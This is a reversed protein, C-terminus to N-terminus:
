RISNEASGASLSLRVLEAVSQVHLKEMVRARHVEVTKVSLALEDAIVRNLKGAIVREMVERERRTLAAMSAQANKERGRREIMEASRQLCRQIIEVLKRYDFPKEVFDIAGERVAQVAEAIHATGSVFVIPLDIGREKLRQQLHLGDMGTLTLDLVLCSPRDDRCATLFAEANAFGEARLGEREMLWSVLRRISADDDVIYVTPAPKAPEVSLDARASVM